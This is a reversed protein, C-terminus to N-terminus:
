VGAVHQSRLALRNLANVYAKASAVIIDLDTGRGTATRGNDEISVTVEGQADTGGTIANVKYQTLHCTSRTIAKITNLAADVPGDGFHAERVVKGDVEMEVTATPMIHTGSQVNLSRLQFRGGGDVAGQTVIAELDEDYVVKKADALRKFEAFIRGLENRSFEYGLNKLRDALATRGSHKGLVINNSKIGVSEPTMIEYTLPNKLVGDQHIGAEHAFANAGVIAKNPQVPQGTLQTLLRSTPFIQETVIGTELNFFQQRTKLAMVIEEMSANGAREGIGNVTCEVQRAGAQVAALSNAVAMGLDNHCHVSFVVKDADKIENKLRDILRFMETPTTYGVTDPINLISAGAAVVQTLLKVLFEPESRTADECSFEVSDTYSRMREVARISSELVEEPTMMLKHKMHLPSTAIVTHLGWNFSGKLAESAADIDEFRTRCLSVVRPGKLTHGIDRVSEFDGPSSAAFGAEITDVGLKALQQALLLKEEANMSYGPAQEGDRLTTDFIRVKHAQDM